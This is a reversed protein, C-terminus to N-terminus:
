LYEWWLLIVRQTKFFLFLAMIRYIIMLNHLKKFIDIEPKLNIM